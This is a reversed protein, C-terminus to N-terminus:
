SEIRKPKPGGRGGEEGHSAAYDWPQGAAENYRRILRSIAFTADM